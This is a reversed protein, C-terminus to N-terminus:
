LITSGLASAILEVAIEATKNGHDLVPNVEVLEFSGLRGCEAVMELSLHAERYSFGGHVPTGTGPAVSPDLVDIDFSVHLIDVDRTALEIAETVVDAIGRRDIDAMTFAHVGSDRVLQKETRDLDRLGVQVIRSPSLKPGPYGITCLSEPGRGLLCAIPMGHINGSPSTEPTNMDSHADFWLVGVKPAETEPLKKSDVLHHAVGSISGIALSHDGGIILPLGGQELSSKVHMALQDCAETVVPLYKAHEDGSNLTEPISVTVDGHEHIDYGLRTLRRHLGAIRIATPGMGVGRRGAGHDLPVGIVHVIRSM